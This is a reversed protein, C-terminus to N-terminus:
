AATAKRRTQEVAEQLKLLHQTNLQADAIDEGLAEQKFQSWQQRNHVLGLERVQAKLTDLESTAPSIAPTGKTQDNSNHSPTSREVPADVIREGEAFEEDAFQTGYGLKALARGTAGTDAKECYDAFNAACESKIAEAYGGKGDEVIAKYRAYGKAHKVVKESRRREANWVWAEAEVERDLDVELEVVQIKGQPCAERFWVLRYQVPLYDSSAGKSSKIQIIHENPSFTM